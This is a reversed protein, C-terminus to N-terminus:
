VIQNEESETRLCHALDSGLEAELWSEQHNLYEQLEDYVSWENYEAADSYMEDNNLNINEM